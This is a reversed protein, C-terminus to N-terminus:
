RISHNQSAKIILESVRIVDAAHVGSKSGREWTFGALAKDLESLSSALAPHHSKAAHGRLL